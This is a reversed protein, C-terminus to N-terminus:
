AQKTLIRSELFARAVVTGTEVLQIMAVITDTLHMKRMAKSDVQHRVVTMGDAISISASASFLNFQSHYFWGDWSIADLPAPIATVGGVTGANETVM